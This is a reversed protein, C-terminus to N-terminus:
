KSIKKKINKVTKSLSKKIDSKVEVWQKKLTSWRAKLWKEIEKLAEQLVPLYETVSESWSIKAKKIMEVVNDKGLKALERVQENEPLDQLLNALEKWIDVLENWIIKAKQEATKWKLESRLTEWTKKACIMWLTAWSVLGLIFKFLRM